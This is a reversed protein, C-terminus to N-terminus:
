ALVTRVALWTDRKREFSLSAHAPSTSPMRFVALGRAEFWPAHRAATAGNFAVAVIGPAQALLADFGNDVADRIASDLSGRRRCSGVVDWLAIRRARLRQLRDPYPLPVLAEDIVAGIIPWFQNRPHAYYQGAALSAVSPFSGLVLLRADRSVVPAFGRRM